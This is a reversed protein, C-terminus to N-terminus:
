EDGWHGSHPSNHEIKREAGDREIRVSKKPRADVQLQFIDSRSYHGVPDFDFKSRHVDNIDIDAILTTEETFNPGAIITGMPDIICSGGRSVILEPDEGLANPYIEPFDRRRSFQNCALVFCRGEVAIHQMSPLWSDRMDATPALYLEIGQGYMAARLLPMYNEWCIVAGINGLETKFVPLTSGDGFGWFLREAATPMVKRHKGLYSGDRSFFVVACYLTGLEREIVGVALFMRFDRAVQSIFDIAPGPIDVAAERYIAFGDRADETRYGVAAAFNFGRPYGPVFAEPFLLLEVQQKAADAAIDRLKDLTRGQDFAVSAAQAVGIRLNKRKLVGSGFGM